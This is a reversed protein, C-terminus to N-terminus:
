SRLRSAARVKADAALAALALARGADVHRPHLDLEEMVVLLPVAVRQLVAQDRVQGVVGMRGAAHRPEGVQAVANGARRCEGLPQEAQRRPTAQRGPAAVREPARAVPRQERAGLRRDGRRAGAGLRRQEEDVGEVADELALVREGRRAHQVGGAVRQVREVLAAAMMAAAPGKEGAAHDIPRSPAAALQDIRQQREGGGADGDDAELRRAQQRQAVLREREAEAVLRTVTAPWASRNSSNMARSALAPRNAISKAGSACCSRTWPWQWWFANAATAGIRSTSRRTGPALRLQDLGRAAAHGAAEAVLRAVVVDRQLHGLRAQQRRDPLRRRRDDDGVAGAAPLLDFGAGAALRQVDRASSSRQRGPARAMVHDSIARSASPLKPTAMALRNKATPASQTWVRRATPASAVCASM